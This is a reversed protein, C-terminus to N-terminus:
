IDLHSFDLTFESTDGVSKCNTRVEMMELILCKAEETTGTPMGSLDREAIQFKVISVGAPVELDSFQEEVPSPLELRFVSKVTQQEDGQRINKVCGCFSVVKVHGKGCVPDAGNGGLFMPMLQHLMIKPWTCEIVIQTGGAEIRQSLMDKTTGVPLLVMLTWRTNDNDDIWPFLHHPLHLTIEDNPSMEARYSASRAPPPAKRTSPPSAFRPAPSSARAAAAAAKAAAAPPPPPGNNGGGGGGDDDDKQKRPLYCIHSIRLVGKQAARESKCQEEEMKAKIIKVMRGVSGKFQKKDHTTRFNRSPEKYIQEADFNDVDYGDEGNWFKDYIYEYDEAGIKLGGM